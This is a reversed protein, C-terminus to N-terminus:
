KEQLYSGAGIAQAHHPAFVLGGSGNVHDYGIECRAGYAPTGEGGIRVKVEEQLVKVLHVLFNRIHLAKCEFEGRHM